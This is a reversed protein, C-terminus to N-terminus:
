GSGFEVLVRDGGTLAAIERGYVELLATEIRTPYYEDLKTIAEFLESGRADYFFRCPISRPKRWLGALVADAFDSPASADDERLEALRSASPLPAYLSVYSEM